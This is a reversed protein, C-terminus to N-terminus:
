ISNFQNGFNLYFKYIERELRNIGEMREPGIKRERGEKRGGKRARSLLSRERGRRDGSGSEYDYFFFFVFSEFSNIETCQYIYM